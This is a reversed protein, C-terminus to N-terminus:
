YEYVDEAIIILRRCVTWPLRGSLEEATCGRHYVPSADRCVPNRCVFVCGGKKM